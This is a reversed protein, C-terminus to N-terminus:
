GLQVAGLIDVTQGISLNKGLRLDDPLYIGNLQTSLVNFNNSESILLSDAVIKKTSTGSKLEIANNIDSANATISNFNTGLYKSQHATNQNSSFTIEEKDYISLAVIGSSAIEIASLDKGYIKPLLVPGFVNYPGNSNAVPYTVTISNLQQFNRVNGLTKLYGTGANYDSYAM